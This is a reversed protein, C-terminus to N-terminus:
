KLISGMMKIQFSGHTKPAFDMIIELVCTLWTMTHGTTDHGAFLIIMMNGYQTRFDEGSTAVAQSLPGKVGKNEGNSVATPLAFDPDSEVKEMMDLAVQQLVEPDTGIGQKVCMQLVSKLMKLAFNVM